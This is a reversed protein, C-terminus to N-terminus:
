QRKVQIAPLKTEDPINENAHLSFHSSSHERTKDTATVEALVPDKFWVANSFNRMLHSIRNNTEAVGEADFAGDKKSFRTLYVGDPLIHVLEDFQHVIISRKGQLDQIVRMREILQARQKELENITAIDKQLASQEKQILLNRETQLQIREGIDWRILVISIVAFAVAAVLIIFFQKKLEDRRQQRWPLLNVRAM